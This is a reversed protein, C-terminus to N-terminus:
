ISRCLMHGISARCIAHIIIPLFPIFNLKARMWMRRDYPTNGKITITWTQSVVATAFFGSSKGAAPVAFHLKSLGDEIPEGYKIGCFSPPLAAHWRETDSLLDHYEFPTGNGYVWDVARGVLWLIQNGLMDEETEGERWKVDWYKPAMQLPTENAIAVNIEHRIWIWFNARDLGTSQANIGQTRILKMAGECHQRYEEGEAALIEYSSLLM